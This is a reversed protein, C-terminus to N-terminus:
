NILKDGNDEENDKKKTKIVQVKIRLENVKPSTNSIVTVKKNYDGPERNVASYEVRIFGVSGPQVLEKSWDPTTCGCSTKVRYIKLPKRGINKFKFNHNVIEGQKITGFDHFKELFEIKTQALTDFKADKPDEKYGTDKCSTGVLLFLFCSAVFFVNQITLRFNGKKQYNKSDLENSM